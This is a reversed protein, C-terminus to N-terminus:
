DSTEYFIAWHGSTWGDILDFTPTMKANVESTFQQAETINGNAEVIAGTIAHVIGPGDKCSLTLIWHNKESSYLSM